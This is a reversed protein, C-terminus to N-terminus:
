NSRIEVFSDRRLNRLAKEAELEFKKRFLLDKVQVPNPLEEAQHQLDCLMFLRIGDDSAMPGSIDGTKLTETLTRLAPPLEAVPAKIFRVEIASAELNDINAVSKDTCTGPNKSVQEAISLLVNAENSDSAPKMKLLIEKLMAITTGNEKTISRTNMLKVITYGVNTRLPSTIGGVGAQKISAAIAPDLQDPQIWFSDLQGSGSSSLQRAVEEFNAGGRLESVLKDATKKIDAERGTKDVPLTISAIMVEEVSAPAAMRKQLMTVEDDSIKIQSRVKRSLLKNWALQARLQDAFTKESVGSAQLIQAISGAPMGRSEEISAVAPGIEADTVSINARQAAQMQLSEDILSRIVQPRIRDIVEPTNSIKTTAVIFAIRSQVDGTTIARDGAIAVISTGPQLQEPAKTAAKAKAAKAPKVKPAPDAAFAPQVVLFPLAFLALMRLTPRAM